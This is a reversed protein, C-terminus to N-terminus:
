ERMRTRGHRERRIGVAFRRDATAALFVVGEDALATALKTPM